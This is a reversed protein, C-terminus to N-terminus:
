IVGEDKREIYNHINSTNHVLLFFSLEPYIEKVQGAFEYVSVDDLSPMAIVLDFKKTALKEFAREASSVWTLKPPRSLNLGRYENIIRAALKGEEEMIFADYPCSVLLIDEVKEKMLEHYIKFFPDYNDNNTNETNAM